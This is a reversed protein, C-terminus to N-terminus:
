QFFQLISPAIETLDKLSRTFQHRLKEPGIVLGPVRNYTHKRTNVDEMNGHDSTIFILGDISQWSSVLGGLMSDLNELLFCAREMDAWHGAYDSLWFEFFSFDYQTSLHGLREGAEHHSLVPIEHYNLRERWGQGTFDASLANGAILDETTKLPIGAELVSMAVAGPLRRGSAIGEFYGHPYANLLAVRYGRLKLKHFITGTELFEKIEPNPKPGYHFGIEAPINIGTLIAAQGSASQPIGEVGLTADLGVLTADATEVFGNTSGLTDRVLRRDGLLKMLNPTEARAFPNSLPDNNGLGVGDLFVFLFHMLQNYQFFAIPSGPLIELILTPVM